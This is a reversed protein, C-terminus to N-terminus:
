APRPHYEDPEGLLPGQTVFEMNAKGKCLLTTSAVEGALSPAVALACSAMPFMCNFRPSGDTDMYRVKVPAMGVANLTAQLRRGQEHGTM